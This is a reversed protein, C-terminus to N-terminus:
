TMAYAIVVEVVNSMITKTKWHLEPNVCSLYVTLFYEMKMDPDLLSEWDRTVRLQKFQIMVVRNVHEVSAMWNTFIWKRSDVLVRRELNWAKDDNVGLLLM